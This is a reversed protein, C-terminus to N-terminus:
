NKIGPQAPLAVRGRGEPRPIGCVQKVALPKGDVSWYAMPTGDVLIYGTPKDDTAM